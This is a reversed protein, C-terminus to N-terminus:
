EKIISNIKQPMIILNIKDLSNKNIYEISPTKEVSM